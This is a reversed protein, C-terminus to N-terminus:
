AYRVRAQSNRSTRQNRHKFAPYSALQSGSLDFQSTSSSSSADSIEAATSAAADAESSSANAVSLMAKPQTMTGRRLSRESIIQTDSPVAGDLGVTVRSFSRQLQVAAAADGKEESVTTSSSNTLAPTASVLGEVSLQSSARRKHAHPPEADASATTSSPPRLMSSKIRGYTLRKSIATRSPSDPPGIGATAAAAAATMLAASSVLRTTTPSSLPNSMAHKFELLEAHAAQLAAAPDSHAVSHHALNGSSSSGGHGGHLLSSSSALGAGSGVATLNTIAGNNLPFFDSPQPIHQAISRGGLGLHSLSHLGAASMSSRQLSPARYSHRHSHQQATSSAAEAAQYQAAQQQKALSSSKQLPNIHQWGPVAISNGDPSEAPSGVVDEAGGLQQMQLRMLRDRKHERLQWMERENALPLTVLRLDAATSRDPLDRDFSSAAAVSSSLSSYLPASVSLSGDSLLSARSRATQLPSVHQSFTPRQHPQKDHEQQIQQQERHRDDAEQKTTVTWDEQREKMEQMLMVIRRARTGADTSRLQTSLVLQQEASLSAATSASTTSSLGRAALSSGNTQQLGSRSPSSVLSRHAGPHGPSLLGLVSASTSIGPAM